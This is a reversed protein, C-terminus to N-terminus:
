QDSAVAAAGLSLRLTYPDFADADRGVDVHVYVYYTGAALPLEIHEPTTDDQVSQGVVTGTSDTLYLDYDAPLNTLDLVVDSADDSLRFAYADTDGASRLFGV